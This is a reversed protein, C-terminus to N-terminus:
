KVKIFFLYIYLSMYLFTHISGSSLVTYTQPFGTLYNSLLFILIIELSVKYLIAKLPPLLLWMQTAIMIRYIYFIIIPIYIIYNKYWNISRVVFVHLSEPEFLHGASIPQFVVEEGPYAMLDFSYSNILKLFNRKRDFFNKVSYFFFSKSNVM